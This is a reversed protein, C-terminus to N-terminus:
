LYHVTDVTRTNNETKVHLVVTQGQATLIILTQKLGDFLEAPHFSLASFLEGHMNPVVAILVKILGNVKTWMKAQQAQGVYWYKLAM